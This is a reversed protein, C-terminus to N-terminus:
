PRECRSGSDPLGVPWIGGLDRRSTRRLPGAVGDLPAAKQPAHRPQEGRDQGHDLPFRITRILAIRFPKVALAEVFDTASM